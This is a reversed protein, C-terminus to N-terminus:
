NSGCTSQASLAAGDFNFRQFTGDANIALWGGRAPETDWDWDPLVYRVFRKGGLEYYHTAPRHTHGHVMITTGTEEFLSAIAAANVDMIEYSKTRQAERSGTRMGDIIAKRQTLPMALFSRQWDPDRVQARFAMYAHDDICQADGHVLAIRQGAIEAVFPEQLLIIGTAKAFGEGILFDRNGGIWFVVVGVASVAKIAAAIQRHYPAAIDDDGAWSEFLDGLLYLQQAKGAKQRLFDIFAQTTRPLSPQLHIDSVFLAIAQSQANQANANVTSDAM